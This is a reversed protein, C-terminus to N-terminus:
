TQPATRATNASVQGHRRANDRARAQEELRQKRACAPGPGRMYHREPHYGLNLMDRAAAISRRLVQVLSMASECM